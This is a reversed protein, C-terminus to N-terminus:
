LWSRLRLLGLTSLPLFITVISNGISGKTSLTLLLTYLSQVGQSTAILTKMTSLSLLRVHTEQPQRVLFQASERIIQESGDWGKWTWFLNNSATMSTPMWAKSKTRARRDTIALYRWIISTPNIHGLYEHWLPRHSCLYVPSPVGALLHVIFPAVCLTLNSVWENFNFNNQLTFLYIVRGM